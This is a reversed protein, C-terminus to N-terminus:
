WFKRIVEDLPELLLDQLGARDLRAHMGLLIGLLVPYLM